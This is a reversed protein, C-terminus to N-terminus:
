GFQGLRRAGISVYDITSAVTLTIMSWFLPDVIKSPVGVMVCLLTAMQTFTTVKGLWRPVIVSSKMLIYIVSWGLVILLDRSFVVVFAWLPIKHLYSLTLYTASLLLKDAMPDLFVGLQTREGRLRAAMGDLVDTLMSFLFIVAPWVPADLLLGIVLPPILLVRLITIKNALTM